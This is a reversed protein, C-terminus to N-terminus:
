SSDRASGWLFGGSRLAPPMVAGIGDPTDTALFGPASLDVRRMNPAYLRVGEIRRVFASPMDAACRGM